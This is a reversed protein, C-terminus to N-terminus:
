KQIGKKSRWLNPSIESQLKKEKKHSKQTRAEEELELLRNQAGIMM